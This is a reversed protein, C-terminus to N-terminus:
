PKAGPLRHTASHCSNAFRKSQLNRPAGRETAAAMKAPLSARIEKARDM